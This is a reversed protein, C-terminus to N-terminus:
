RVRVLTSGFANHPGDEAYVRLWYFGAPVDVPITINTAVAGGVVPESRSAVRKDNAAAYNAAIVADRGPDGDPPVPALPQLIQSRASELTVTATGGRLPTTIAVALDAGPSAEAPTAEVTAPQPYRIPRGPDGFLTYLYLHSRRLAELDAPSTTLGFADDIQQRLADDNNIMREKAAVFAEGVSAARAETIALGFERIYLTNPYVSSERTSSLVALPGDNRALLTESVSTGLDFAGMTCAVLTLIPARPALELDDLQALDLIPYYGGNWELHDFSSESGHGFYSVVLAGENIREYVKDSFQEPIYVYPSGQLAYTMTIDFDYSIEDLVRDVLSEILSDVIAGQGYSGAFLNIRRDWPGVQGASLSRMFYLHVAAADAAPLRGVAVDALDDDDMDAYVHDTAITIPGPEYSLSYTYSGTPVAAGDYAAGDAADGVLLVFLPRAPDRVQWYGRVHERIAAVVAAPESGPAALEGVGTLVVTHDRSTQLDALEEAAARLPDAAVILYDVAPPGVPGMDPAAATTGTGTDGADGADGTTLEATTGTLVPGATTPVAGTAESSAPGTSGDPAAPDAACALVGTSLLLSLHTRM